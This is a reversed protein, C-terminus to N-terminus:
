RRPCCRTPYGRPPTDLHCVDGADLIVLSAAGHGLAARLPVNAVSGADGYHRGDILVPPFVGPMATAARLVTVLDGRHHWRVHSTLVDVTVVILSHSLEAFTRARLTRDIVRALGDQPHLHGTRLVSVAQAVPGGPFVQRRAIHHWARELADVADSLVAHDAVVAGNLGGVSTGVILDPELGVEALARLMGVQVAGLSAGGSLVFAVPRPLATAWTTRSM